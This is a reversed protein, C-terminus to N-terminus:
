FNGLISKIWKKYEIKIGVLSEIEWELFVGDFSKETLALLVSM